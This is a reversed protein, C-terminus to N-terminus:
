RRGLPPPNYREAPFTGPTGGGVLVTGDCLLVAQHGTRAIAMHDTAVVDVTGDLPNLRIIYANDLPASGPATRGGTLLIRGDPLRTTAFDVVGADDPLQGVLAFSSGVSFLELAHVPQGLADLGGIFLVSGDPMLTATHGSRPVKMEPAFVAPDALGESLPKFLEAAPVPVGAADIGGAILVPAGVDDGLLTATHGSRPVALKAPLKRIELSLDDQALQIEDIDGVPAGGPPSGGIVIVRGDTLATATLDVRAVDPAEVPEVGHEDLVEILGMGTTGSSGGIVLARPPSTGILAQVARDRAVVSGIVGLRGTSPDFREVSFVPGPGDSGGVLLAAGLYSIGLGGVRAMPTVDLSAFKLSRSFFLHPTVPPADPAVPVVCTRGYAVNSNGVLGSMHVVLDDGFPVGSLELTQGDQFSQSVLERDSGAHAVTLSIADLASATADVDDAAPVDIVPEIVTPGDSCAALVLVAAWAVARGGSPRCRALGACRRTM